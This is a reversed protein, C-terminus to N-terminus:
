GAPHIDLAQAIRMGFPAPLEFLKAEIRALFVLGEIKSHEQSDERKAARAADSLTFSGGTFWRPNSDPPRNM